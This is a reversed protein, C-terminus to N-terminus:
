EEVMDYYRLWWDKLLNTTFAYSKDETDYSVYFDNEIDAMLHSFNEDTLKGGSLQRFLKFLETKTARGKRAIELILRKAISEIDHDYYDKLRTFYHEFYTRSAPGLVGDKYAKKIIESSLQKKGSRRMEYLSEKVLVQIFFPVPAGIIEMIEDVVSTKVRAIQGESKLLAKIYGRGDERSFPGVNTIHFDNIVKTGAKIGNLIHEIGISGGVVWKVNHLEQRISRFWLMFDCATDAGDKRRINQVLLPLEDLIILIKERSERAKLM